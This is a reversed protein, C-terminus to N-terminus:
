RRRKSSVMAKEEEDLVHVEKLDFKNEEALEKIEQLSSDDADFLYSIFGPQLNYCYELKSNEFYDKVAYRAKNKSKDLKM